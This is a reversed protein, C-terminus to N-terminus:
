VKRTTIIKGNVKKGITYTDPFCVFYNNVKFTKDDSEADMFRQGPAGYKGPNHYVALRKTELAAALDEDTWEKKAIVNWTFKGKEDKLCVPHKDKSKDDPKYIAPTLSMGWSKYKQIKAINTEM